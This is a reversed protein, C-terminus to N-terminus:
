QAVTAEADLPSQGIGQKAIVADIAEHIELNQDWDAVVLSRTRVQLLELEALPKEFIADLARSPADGFDRCFSDPGTGPFLRLILGITDWWLEPPIIKPAIERMKSHAILRHPGLSEAWRPDEDIIARLRVPFPCGEAYKISLERALSLLEDIAVSLPNEEDVLLIRAALAGVAYMDCPSALMPLIEFQATRVPTGTVQDLAALADHPLKQPLTRIRTEGRALAESEDAHGYLDVRGIPLGLRIHILDSGAIELREDSALTAEICSGEPVPPLIKRIRFVGEGTMLPHLTQPRYISPGPATPPIFYRSESTAVPLPVGASSEVLEARASWFFPLGMGTESLRVRFSESSLNLMPLQQLRIAERTQALVQFILNMKLHFVERLRGAGGDRGTFLHAGRQILADADELQSYAGGLHFSAGLFSLGPWSRGGLLDAFDALKLPCFSRVLLFGGCPNFPLLAPFAESSSKIGTPTPAESTAAVIVPAEIGPGNWLYRHLSSTYPPLGASLLAADDTCLIFPRNTVPEVPHILRGAKADIFAPRPHVKEWGTEILTSRDLKQFMALRTSWRQDMLSNSVAELQARFSQAMHDVNQVWVEIWAKPDGSCDTLCGLYISSDITERVLLLPTGLAAPSRAVLSIRLPVHPEDPDLPLAVYGEPLANATAERSMKIVTIDAWHLTM